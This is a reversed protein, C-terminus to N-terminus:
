LWEDVDQHGIIAMIEVTQGEVRYYVSDSGCVSRRYGPRIHDVAPHLLPNEALQEFHQIFSDFYSDAQEPGWQKNGFLWIRYLDAEANGSLRYRAM